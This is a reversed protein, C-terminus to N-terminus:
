RNIRKLRPHLVFTEKEGLWKVLGASFHSGVAILLTAKSIHQLSFILFEIKEKIVNEVRGEGGYRL